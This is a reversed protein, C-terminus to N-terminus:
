ETRDASNGNRLKVLDSLIFPILDPIDGAVMGPGFRIAAEGHMWVAACCAEFPLMGQGVLGAIFGALVDGTGASALYPSAHFNVKMRSDPGAIVTRPGKLVVIIKNSKAVKYAKEENTGSIDPFARDFEGQQPTIVTKQKVMDQSLATVIAEADLVWFCDAFAIRFTWFVQPNVGGCGALIVSPKKFNTFDGERVMIEPPLSTRYIPAAKKAVVTVLGAGMRSCATAALRTAGTLEPAGIIVAHARDYKNGLPSPVPLFEFFSEPTNAQWVM